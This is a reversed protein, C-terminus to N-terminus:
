ALETTVYSLLGVCVRINFYINYEFTVSLTMSRDLIM